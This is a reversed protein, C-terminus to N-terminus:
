KENKCGSLLMNYKKALRDKESRLYRRDMKLISIRMKLTFNEKELAEIKKVYDFHQLIKKYTSFLTPFIFYIFLFNLIGILLILVIFEMTSLCIMSM